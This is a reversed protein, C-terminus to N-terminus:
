KMTDMRAVAAAGVVGVKDSAESIVLECSPEQITWHYHSFQKKIKELLFDGALALGGSFM